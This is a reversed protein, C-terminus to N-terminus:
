AMVGSSVYNALEVSGQSGTMFQFTRRLWELFKLEDYIVDDDIDIVSYGMDELISKQQEDKRSVRFTEHTPGQVRVVLKLFPFLFDAVMGGLEMRGGDMSSQFDFQGGDRMHMYIVLAKYLIREPLTGRVSSHPVARAELPNEGISTRRIGRKHVIMWWPDERIDRNRVVDRSRINLPREVPQEIKIRTTQSARRPKKRQPTPIKRRRAM